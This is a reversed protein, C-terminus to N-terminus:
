VTISIDVARGSIPKVTADVRIADGNITAVCAPVSSVRDDELLASKVYFAALSNSVGDLKDGILTPLWCGYEPHFMLERKWTSIRIRISQTFNPIGGVLAIDGQLDDLFGNNLSIDRFFVYDM